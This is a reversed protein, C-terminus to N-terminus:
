SYRAQHRHLVVDSIVNVVLTLVFLVFGVAFLAHYHVTGFPVEGLEIAITATLTRVSDLLGHPFASANGTAMLVTMTEGIARGMGLMVAAIIGSLASPVVVRLTTLLRNAGLAYSAERYSRPVAKLADESVSVITPLSMIALLVGGNVANLGNPMGFIRALIPGLVVIGLFGVVVSPIGALIEILPKVVERVRHPAFESLYAAAGVGIPVALLLALLTVMLTSALMALIGYSRKVYSTPNWVASGLFNSTSIPRVGITLMERETPPLESIERATLGASGLPPEGQTFAKATMIALLIFIGLLILVASLGALGFLGHMLRERFRTYPTSRRCFASRCADTM